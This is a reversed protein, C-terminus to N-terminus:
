DHVEAIFGTLQSRVVHVLDLTLYVSENVIQATGTLLCAININLHTNILIVKYGRSNYGVRTSSINTSTRKQSLVTIPNLDLYRM